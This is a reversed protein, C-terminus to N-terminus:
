MGNAKSIIDAKIMAKLEDKITSSRIYALLQKKGVLKETEIDVFTHIDDGNESATVQISSHDQLSLRLDGEERSTVLIKVLSTSQTSIHELAEILDGRMEIDCEDLADLVITISSYLETLGTILDRSEELTISRKTSAGHENFRKYLRLAAPALPQAASTCSLQRAICSLIKQVKSRDLEATSRSCYFYVTPSDNGTKESASKSDEIVM